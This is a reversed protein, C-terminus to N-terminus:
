WDLGPIGTSQIFRANLGDEYRPLVGERNWLRFALAATLVRIPYDRPLHQLYPQITYFDKAGYQRMISRLGGNRPGINYALLGLFLDGNMEDLYHRLTAAALHANHQPNRFDPQVGHFQNRVEELAARPPATIQFIGRGGDKSDRPVFSSEAAGIGVLLEEDVGHTRGAERLMPLFPRSRDLIQQLQELNARRYAAYVQHAISVRGAEEVGGVMDRLNSLDQRFEVRAAFLLAGAAVLCAAMAARAPGSRKLCNRLRLWLWLLVSGSLALLLVTGAFPLLSETLGTGGFWDAARGLVAITGIMGTLALLGSEAVLLLLRKWQNGDRAAAQRLPAKRRPIGQASRPQSPTKSSYKKRPSRAM